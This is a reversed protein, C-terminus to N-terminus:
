SPLAAAMIRVAAALEREDHYTFGIRLFPQARGSFDFMGAGRFLVGRAEGATSWADLDITPSVRAWIALGGDPVAFALASGLHEALAAALADRRRGYTEFVAGARLYAAIRARRAASWRGVLRQPRPYHNPAAENFWYGIAHLRRM